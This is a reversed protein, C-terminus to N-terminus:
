HSKDSDRHAVGHLLMQTMEEVIQDDRPHAEGHNFVWDDLIAMGFVMAFIARVSLMADVNPWNNLQVEEDTMVEARRLIPEIAESISTGSSFDNPYHARAALLAMVSRKVQTFTRYMGEIYSHAVQETMTTGPQHHRWEDFWKGIFVVFPELVAYEFLGAKTSFHRYILVEAIGARAAVDRTATGAYGREDFLERAAALILARVEASSRRTRRAVAGPDGSTM